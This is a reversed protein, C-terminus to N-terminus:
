LRDYVADRPDDWDENFSEEALAAATWTEAEDESLPVGHTSMWMALAEAVIERMPRNRRASQVKLARLLREDGLDITLKPM